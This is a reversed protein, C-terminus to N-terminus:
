PRQDQDLFPRAAVVDGHDAELVGGDVDVLLSSIASITNSPTVLTKLSPVTAMMSRLRFTSSPLRITSTPGDSIPLACTQVGTVTGDRIGDEAQFVFIRENEAKHM